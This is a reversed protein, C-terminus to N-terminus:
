DVAACYSQNVTSDSNNCQHKRRDDIESAEALSVPRLGMGRWTIILFDPGQYYIDFSEQLNNISFIQSFGPGWFDYQDTFFLFYNVNNELLIEKSEKASGRLVVGYDPAFPPDLTGIFSARPLILSESCFHAKLLIGNLPLLKEGTPLTDSIKLCRMFDTQTTPNNWSNNVTSLNKLQLSPILGREVDVGTGMFFVLIILLAGYLFFDQSKGFRPIAQGILKATKYLLSLLWSVLVVYSLARYISQFELVRALSGINIYINIFSLIWFYGWYFLLFFIIPKSIYLGHKEREIKQMKTKIAFIAVLSQLAVCVWTLIANILPSFFMLITRKSAFVAARLVMLIDLNIHIGGEQSSARYVYQILDLSSWQSFRDSNILHKFISIPNLDPIGIYIQNLLLSFVSTVVSLLLLWWFYKINQFNGQPKIVIYLLVTFILLAIILSQLFAFFISVSIIVPVLVLFLRKAVKNDALILLMIVWSIFLIYAGEQLHLRAFDMPATLLLAIVLACEPVLYQVIRWILRDNKIILLFKNCIRHIILAIFGAYIVSIMKMAYVGILNTLFFYGGQGRFVLFSIPMPHVKDLWIGHLFKVENFFPYYFSLIDNNVEPVMGKTYVLIAFILLAVIRLLFVLVKIITPLVKQKESGSSFFNIDNSKSSRVYQKKYCRYVYHYSVALFVPVTVTPTLLHLLGFVFGLIILCSFGLGLRITQIDLESLDSNQSIKNHPLFITGLSVVFLLLGPFLFILSLYYIIIPVGGTIVLDKYELPSAFLGILGLISFGLASASLVFDKNWKTLLSEIPFLTFFILFLVVSFFKPFVFINLSSLSFMNDANLSFIALTSWVIGQSLLLSIILRLGICYSSNNILKKSIYLRILLYFASGLSLTLAAGIIIQNHLSRNQLYVWKEFIELVIIGGLIISSLLGLVTRQKKQM